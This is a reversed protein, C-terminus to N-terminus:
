TWTLNKATIDATLGTPQTLTYSSANTGSLTLASTVPKATGVNFLRIVEEWSTVATKECAGLGFPLPM